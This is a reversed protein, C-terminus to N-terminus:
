KWTNTPWKNKAWDSLPSSRFARTVKSCQPCALTPLQRQMQFRHISNSICIKWTLCLGVPCSITSLFFLLFATLRSFSISSRLLSRCGLMSCHTQTFPLRVYQTFTLFHEGHQYAHMSTLGGGAKNITIGSALKSCHLFSHQKSCTHSGLATYGIGWPGPICHGYCITPLDSDLSYHRWLITLLDSDLSYTIAM